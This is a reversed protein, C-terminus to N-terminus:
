FDQTITQGSLDKFSFSTANKKIFILSTEQPALYKGYLDYIFVNGSNKFQVLGNGKFMEFINFSFKKQWTVQPIFNQESLNRTYAVEILKGQNNFRYGGAPIPYESSLGKVVFSLHSTDMKTFYDIGSTNGWTPDVQVWGYNPDYFEAWAHLLDVGKLNISLPKDNENNNFAYGDVERAPIGMARALTIFSDTFEMCTWSGKKTLAAEAGKREVLDKNIAGFDYTLNEVVYNYAQQANKVVNMNPNKLQRSIEQVDSSNTEWYKQESTYNKLLDTSLNEFKGGSSPNIQNTLLRASGNVEIIIKQKPWLLYSATANGDQDFFIKGPQPDIKQYSINQYNKIDSPLAIEVKSFLLLPNELEYKLNFNLTQYLGFGASIGSGHFTDKTLYFINKGEKNEELVPNPSFYMKPGFSVPVSVKANYISTTNPFKIKPITISWIDGTKTAINNTTYTLIIENIKGLGIVHNNIPITISSDSNSTVVKVKTSIQNVTATIESMEMNKIEFSYSTPVSNPNSNTIDVKQTILARGNEQIDYTMDYNLVFQNDFSEARVITLLILSLVAFIAFKIKRM